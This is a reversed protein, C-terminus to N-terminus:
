WRAMSCIASTAPTWGATRRLASAGDGRTRWPITADPESRPRVTRGVKREGLSRGSSDRAELEHGAIVRGCLAFRRTRPAASVGARAPALGNARRVAASAVGATELRDVDVLDTRLGRGLPSLTLALTAEAMGYSAVFAERRFGAPAFAEAFAELPEARIMDGGIGAM